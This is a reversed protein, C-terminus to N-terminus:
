FELDKEARLHGGIAVLTAPPYVQELTSHARAAASDQAIPMQVAGPQPTQERIQSRSGDAHLATGTIGSTTTIGTTCTRSASETNSATRVTRGDPTFTQLPTRRPPRNSRARRVANM